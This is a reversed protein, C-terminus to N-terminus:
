SSPETKKNNHMSMFIWTVAYVCVRMGDDGAGAWGNGGDCPRLTATVRSSANRLIYMHISYIWQSDSHCFFNCILNSQTIFNSYIEFIYYPNQNFYSLLLICTASHFICSFFFSFWFILILFIIYSIFFQILCPFQNWFSKIKLFILFLFFYYFSFWLFFTAFVSGPLHSQSYLHPMLFTSCLAVVGMEAISRLTEVYWKITRIATNSPQWRIAM